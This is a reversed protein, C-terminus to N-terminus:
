PRRAPSRSQASSDAQRPSPPPPPPLAVALALRATLPRRAALGTSLAAGLSRWLEQRGGGGSGADRRLVVDHRGEVGHAIHRGLSLSLSCCTCCPCCRASSAPVARLGRGLGPRAAPGARAGGVRGDVGVDLDGVDDDGPLGATLPKAHCRSNAVM